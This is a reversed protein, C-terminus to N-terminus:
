LTKSTSTLSSYRINALERLRRPGVSAQTEFAFVSECYNDKLRYEAVNQSVLSNEIEAKAANMLM